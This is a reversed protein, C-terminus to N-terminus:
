NDMGKEPIWVQSKIMWKDNIQRLVFAFAGRASFHDRGPLNGTYSVPVVVYVNDSTQQYVKVPEITGKFKTIHYEKVAREVANIWQIGATPGNWSYPPEDDAVVANPTYLNAVAQVNFDNAAYIAMRVVEMVDSNPVTDTAAVARRINYPRFSKAYTLRSLAFLGFLSVLLIKKVM